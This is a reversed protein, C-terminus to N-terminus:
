RTRRHPETRPSTYTCAPPAACPPPPTTARRPPRPTAPGPSPEPARVSRVRWTWNQSSSQSRHVERLDAGNDSTFAVSPLVGDDYQHSASWTIEGAWNVHGTRYWLTTSNQSQHVEVLDGNDNIAVAPTIGSDYRGHRQWTVRGDAGYTGTWYWLAGGGSDHVEVVQGRGNIAIAPHYGVDRRYAARTAADGSLLAFVRGRLADVTANARYDAARLLQTGFVSRLEDNLAALDGAAYSPNDTLDDKLDLM